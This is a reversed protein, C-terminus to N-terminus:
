TCHERRALLRHFAKGLIREIERLGVAREELVDAAVERDRALRLDRPRDRLAHVGRRREDVLLDFRAREVAANCAAARRRALALRALARRQRVAVVARRVLVEFGFGGSGLYTASRRPMLTPPLDSILIAASLSHTSAIPWPSTRVYMALPLTRKSDFSRLPAFSSACSSRAISLVNPSGTRTTTRLPTSIRRITSRMGFAHIPATSSRTVTANRRRSASARVTARPSLGFSPISSSTAAGPASRKAVCRSAIVRVPRLSM